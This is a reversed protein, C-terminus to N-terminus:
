KQLKRLEELERELQEIQKKYLEEQTLPKRNMCDEKIKNMTKECEEYLKKEEDTMRNRWNNSYTMNERHNTKNEFCYEGTQDILKKRIYTRGCKESAEKPLVLHYENTKKELWLKPTYSSNDELYLKYENENIKTIKNLKTIEKNKITLHM